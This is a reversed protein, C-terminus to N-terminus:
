SVHPGKDERSISRPKRGEPIVTIAAPDFCDIKFGAGTYGNVSWMRIPTGPKIRIRFEAWTGEFTLAV